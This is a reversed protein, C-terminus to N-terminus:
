KLPFLHFHYKKQITPTFDKQDFTLLENIGEYQLVALISCDVFSMNKNNMEQFIQWSNQQLKETIHVIKIQKNTLIENGITNAFERNIRQSLVTVIELFTFNSIVFTIHPSSFQKHLHDARKHNTDYENGLAIYYNSDVYITM